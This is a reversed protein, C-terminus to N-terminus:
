CIRLKKLIKVNEYVQNKYYCILIYNYFEVNRVRMIARHTGNGKAFNRKLLEVFEDGILSQDELYPLAANARMMVKNIPQRMRWWEEKNTFLLGQSQEQENRYRELVPSGIRNPFKGSNFKSPGWKLKSSIASIAKLFHWLLLLLFFFLCVFVVFFFCFFLCGGSFLCCGCASYCPCCGCSSFM